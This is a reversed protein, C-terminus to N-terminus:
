AIINSGNLNLYGSLIGRVIYKFREFDLPKVLSVSNRIRKTVDILEDNFEDSLVITPIENLIESKLLSLAFPYSSVVLSIGNNSIYDIAEETSVALITQYGENNLIASCVRSFVNEDVILIKNHSSM